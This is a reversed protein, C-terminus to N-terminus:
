HCSRENKIIFFKPYFYEKDVEFKLKRGSNNGIKGMNWKEQLVIDIIINNIRHLPHPTTIV